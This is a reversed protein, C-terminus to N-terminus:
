QGARMSSAFSIEKAAALNVAVEQTQGDGEASPVPSPSGARGVTVEQSQRLCLQKVTADERMFKASKLDNRRLRNVKLGGVGM